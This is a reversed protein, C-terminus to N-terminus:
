EYKKTQKRAEDDIREVFEDVFFQLKDPHSAYVMMKGSSDSIVFRESWVARRQDETRPPLQGKRIKEDEELIQELTLNSINYGIFMEPRGLVDHHLEYVLRERSIVVEKSEATAIIQEVLKIFPLEKKRRRIESKLVKLPIESVPWERNPEASAALEAFQGFLDGYKNEISMAAM